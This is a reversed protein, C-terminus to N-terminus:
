PLSLAQFPVQTSLLCEPLPLSASIFSFPDRAQRRSNRSRPLPSALGSCLPSSFVLSSTPSAMPCPTPSAKPSTSPSAAMWPISFAMPWPVPFVSPKPILSALSGWKPSARAWLSLSALWARLFVPLSASLCASFIMPCPTSGAWLDQCPVGPLLPAQPVM